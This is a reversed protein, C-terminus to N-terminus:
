YEGAARVRPKGRQEGLSCLCVLSDTSEILQNVKCISKPSQRAGGGVGGAGGSETWSNKDPAGTIEASSYM